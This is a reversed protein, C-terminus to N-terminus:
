EYRGILMFRKHDDDFRHFSIEGEYEIDKFGCQEKFDELDTPCNIHSLEKTFNNSQFVCLGKFKLEKMDVMHECSTNIIIDSQITEIDFSLDKVVYEIRVPVKRHLYKSVEIAEPDFDILTIKKPDLYRQILPVLLTGYWSGMVVVEPKDPYDCLRLQEILWTKSVFQNESFSQFFDDVREPYDNTIKTFADRWDWPTVPIKNMTLTHEFNM